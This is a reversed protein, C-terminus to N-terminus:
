FHTQIHTPREIKTRINFFHSSVTKRTYTKIHNEVYIDIIIQSKLWYSTRKCGLLHKSLTMTHLAKVILHRDVYMM